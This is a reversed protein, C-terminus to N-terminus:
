TRTSVRHLHDLLNEKEVVYQWLAQAARLTTLPSLDNLGQLEHYSAQLTEEYPRVVADRLGRRLADAYLTRQDDDAVFARVRAFLTAMSIFPAVAARQANFLSPPGSPM